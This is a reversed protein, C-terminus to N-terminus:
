VPQRRAWQRLDVRAAAEAGLGLRLGQRRWTPSRSMAVELAQVSWPAGFAYRVNADFRPKNSQWWARLRAVEPVLLDDEPKVEPVPGADDFPEDLSGSKGPAVFHGEMVLGTIACFSEAALPAVEADDLLGLLLEAVDVRGTFGLAWLTSLALDPAKSWEILRARDKADGGLALVAIALRLGKAREAVLRRCAARAQPVRLLTATELAAERTQEDDSTLGRECLSAFSADPARQVARLVAGLLEPHTADNFTQLSLRAVVDPGRGSTAEIICAQVEPESKHLRELLLQPLDARHSLELARTLAQRRPRENTTTLAEWVVQFYDADEAQLLVWTAATVRCSDDEALAPLVLREAVPRGGLVLGDLHALLREEPGEAVESLTYNAAAQAAQWQGWLFAAEDLHEEYIDWLIPRARQM